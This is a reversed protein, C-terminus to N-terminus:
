PQTADPLSTESVMETLSDVVPQMRAWSRPGSAAAM